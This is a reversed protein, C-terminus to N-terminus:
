RDAGYLWGASRRQASDHHNSKAWHNAVIRWPSETASAARKKKKKCKSKAAAAHNKKKKKKCKKKPSQTAPPPPPTFPIAAEASTLEVSGMDGGDGGSANPRDPLDIPRITGRQDVSGISLGKDIAPSTPGPMLTSTDGGNNQLPGLLPDQGFINPGTIMPPTAITATDPSRVLDFAGYFYQGLDNDQGPATNNAVISNYLYGAGGRVAIGGAYRSSNGAITSSYVLSPDNSSAGGGIGNGADAHNGSITSTGITGLSYASYLGGGNGGASNGTIETDYISTDQGAAVTHGAEYLAGGDGTATNGTLAASALTLTANYDFIAGGKDAYGNTLKLGSIGVPDGDTNMDLTFIREHHNGDITLVNAGPGDIYVPYGIGIGGNLTVTGTVSSAFSIYSTNSDGNASYIADRLTCDGPTADECTGNGGDGTSNVTFDDALAPQAVGLLGSAALAAGTIVSHRTGPGGRGGHEHRRQLPRRRQRKAM